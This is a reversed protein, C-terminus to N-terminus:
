RYLLFPACYDELLIGLTERNHASTPPIGNLLRLITQIRTDVWHRTSDASTNKMEARNVLPQLISFLDKHTLITGEDAVSGLLTDVDTEPCDPWWNLVDLSTIPLRYVLKLCLLLKPRESHFQDLIARFVRTDHEILLRHEASGPELLNSTRDLKLFAPQSQRKTHLSLCAHRVINSFYTRFLSTGNYQEQIRPLKELLENNLHQVIDDFESPHFMGSRVYSRVIIRITPQYRVLLERPDTRLLAIDASNAFDEM